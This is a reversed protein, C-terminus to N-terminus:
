QGGYTQEFYEKAQQDLARFIVPGQRQNLRQLIGDILGIGTLTHTGIGMTKIYITDGIQIPFRTITGCCFVHDNLTTNVIMFTGPEYTQSVRGGPTIFDSPEPSQDLAGPGFM